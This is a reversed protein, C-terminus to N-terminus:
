PKAFIADPKWTNCRYMKTQDRSGTLLAVAVSCGMQEIAAMIDAADGDPLMVDLIAIQPNHEAVAASASAVDSAAVVEMALCAVLYEVLMLSTPDDDVVLVKIPAHM